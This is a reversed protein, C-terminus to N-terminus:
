TTGAKGFGLHDRVSKGTRKEFKAITDELKQMLPIEIDIGVRIVETLYDANQQPAARNYARDERKAVADPNPEYSKYAWTVRDDLFLDFNVM